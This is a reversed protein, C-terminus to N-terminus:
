EETLVYDWFILISEIADDTSIQLSFIKSTHSLRRDGITFEIRDAPMIFILYPIILIMIVASM